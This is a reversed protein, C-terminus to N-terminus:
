GSKSTSDAPSPRDGLRLVIDSVAKEGLAENLRAVLSPKLLMLEQLWASSDVRVYLKGSRLEEPRAHLSFTRGAVAEWQKLIRAQILAKELDLGKLLSELVQSVRSLSPKKAM